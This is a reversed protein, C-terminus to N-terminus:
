LIRHWALMTRVIEDLATRSMACEPSQLERLAQSGFGPASAADRVMADM